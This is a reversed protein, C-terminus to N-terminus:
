RGGGQRGLSHLYAVVDDLEAPTFLKGYTDPMLSKFERTMTAVDGKLFSYFSEQVDMFQASFNDFGRQVGTLKKGDRTVVSITPYGPTIDANVDVVAERLYKLSRIRGALSLDPGMRGGRTGVRHCQGCAGKGWFLKEGAARDGRVPEVDRRAVSRIYAVVRWINEEGLSVSYSPMETGAGGERIMRHLDADKDGANYVGRTLDPGRGGEAKIGHCPSCYIRFIGRGAEAAQPDNKFPNEQAPALGSALVFPLWLSKM